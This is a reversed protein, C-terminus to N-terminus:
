CKEFEESPAVIKRSGKVHSGSREVEETEGVTKPKVLRKRDGISTDSKRSRWVPMM